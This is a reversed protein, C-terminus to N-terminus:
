DIMVKYVNGRFDILQIISSSLMFFRHLLTYYDSFHSIKYVVQAAIPMELKRPESLVLKNNCNNEWGISHGSKGVIDDLDPKGLWVCIPRVTRTVNVTKVLKIIALDHDSSELNKFNPHIIYEAVGINVSGSERWSWLDSRGLSVLMMDPSM